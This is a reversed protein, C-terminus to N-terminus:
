IIIISDGNRRAVTLCALNQGKSFDCGIILTDSTQDKVQTFPNKIAPTKIEGIVRVDREVQCDCREGPDLNCGCDPCVRYYTGSM